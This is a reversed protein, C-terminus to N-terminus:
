VWWFPVGVGGLPHTHAIDLCVLLRKRFSFKDDAMLEILCHGCFRLDFILEFTM